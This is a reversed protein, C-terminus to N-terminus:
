IKKRDKIVKAPVGVAIAYAPIDKIVVAGARIIAHKGIIVGPLVIVRHGLWAYDDILVDKVEKGAYGEELYKHNQTIIMCQHGMMVHRGITITGEGSLYSGRGINAHDRLILFSGNGFDVKSAIGFTGEVKKFLPKSLISRVRYSFRGIPGLEDPLHKGIALYLLYCVTKKFTWKQM